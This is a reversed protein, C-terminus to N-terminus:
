QWFVRQPDQNLYAIATQLDAAHTHLEWSDYVHDKQYLRWAGLDAVYELRAIDVTGGEADINRACCPSVILYGESVPLVEPTVYRYRQRQELLKAIRRLDLENPHAAWSAVGPRRAAPDAGAHQHHTMRGKNM